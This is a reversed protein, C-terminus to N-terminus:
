RGGSGVYKEVDHPEIGERLTAVFVQREGLPAGRHGHQAPADEARQEAGDAHAFGGVLDGNTPAAWVLTLVSASVIQAYYHCRGRGMVM